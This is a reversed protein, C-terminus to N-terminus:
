ARGPDLRMVMRDFDFTVAYTRLFGHSVLGGIRFGYAWELKPPFAGAIGQLGERRVGGVSLAAVDFPWAALEGGGGRGKVVQTSGREIGAEELTSRPCAFAGGALGSDVFLVLPLGDNLRGSVLLFHDDAMQMPVEIAAASVPASAARPRLVLAEAPYDITSLFRYLLCTGVIGALNDLGLMPGIGRLDLVQAPLNRVTMDGLTLSEVAAHTLRATKGGGFFASESGFLPVGAARAFAADLIV